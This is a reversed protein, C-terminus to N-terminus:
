CPSGCSESTNETTTTSDPTTPCPKSSPSKFFFMAAVFAMSGIAGLYLYGSMYDYHNPACAIASWGKVWVGVGNVLVFSFVGQAFLAIAQVAGYKERPAWDFMLPEFSLMSTMKAMHAVISFGIIQAPTPVHNVAVYKVFVWYVFPHLACILLGTRFILLRPLKDALMFMLPLVVLMEPIIALTEIRGLMKKTYGFQETVLLPQLSGINGRASVCCFALIYVPIAQRTFLLEKLFRVPHITPKLGESLGVPSKQKERVIFYAGLACLIAMLGAIIYIIHEGRIVMHGANMAGASRMSCVDDFKGLLVLNFVIRASMMFGRRIAVARGRQSQPIVEFYLPAWPGTYGFDMGFQWIFVCVLLVWLSNAFPTAVLAMAMILWGLVFFPVRKGFRSFATTKDSFWAALPAVIFNFAINISTIFVILAPDASFRKLTFPLAVVSCQEILMAVGAPAAMM